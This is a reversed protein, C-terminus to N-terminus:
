VGPRGRFFNIVADRVGSHWMGAAVGIGYVLAVFLVLGWFGGTEEVM